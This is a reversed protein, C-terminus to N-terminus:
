QRASAGLHQKLFALTRSWALDAAPKSYREASTDNNFAHNAGPYNYASVDKDAKRLAEVFPWATKAVRDDLGALHILLPAQVKAAESPDPAPGYYSVGADLTKGAAVAVRDVFAGGWCFGIVAAKGTNSRRDKLFALMAIADRTAAALDLRAIKERAEDENGPTGGFPSLFDPALALYGALAVRRAVDRIHFNLGRNEHIVLVASRRGGARPQALYGRYARKGPLTIYVDRGRLRKDDAPVIAAAAPSAAIACILTEAAAASGALAIMRAMFDRREMGDHTFRDYLAIAQSRIDDTM